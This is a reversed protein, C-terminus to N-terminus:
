GPPIPEAYVVVNDEYRGARFAGGCTILVLRHPVDRDFVAAPLHQKRYTRRAVVRYAHRRAHGDVYVAAGVPLERLRFLAGPGSRDDVHGALALTGTPAGALAGGVWWGVRRPDAPVALRGSAEVPADTVAASVALAPILLRVPPEPGPPGVVPPAPSALTAAPSALTAAPSALTAAPSALTAAPSAVTPARLLGADSPSGSAAVTLSLGALVVVVGAVIMATASCRNIKVRPYPGAPAEM